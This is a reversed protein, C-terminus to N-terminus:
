AANDPNPTLNIGLKAAIMELAMTQWLMHAEFRDVRERNIGIAEIVVELAPCVTPPEDGGPPLTPRKDRTLSDKGTTVIRLKGPM